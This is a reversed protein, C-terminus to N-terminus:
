KEQPNFTVEMGKPIGGTIILTPKQVDKITVLADADILYLVGNQPATFTLVGTGKAVPQATEPVFNNYNQAAGWEKFPDKPESSCGCLLVISVLLFQGTILRRDVHM